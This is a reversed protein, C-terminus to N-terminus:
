EAATAAKIIERQRRYKEVAETGGRTSQYLGLRDYEDSGAPQIALDTYEQKRPDAFINKALHKFYFWSATIKVMESLASWIVRPYFRAPNELPLGPRRDKRYRKRLVGVDLAAIRTFRTQYGFQLLRGATMYRRDSGLAAARKMITKCHELSYFSKGVEEYLYDFEADSINPHHFVRHTLDYKNLDPDMWDGRALARKHDESGPLPTLITLNLIDIPLERKIIEVDRLVSERTDNPFGIIYGGYLITHYKKWALMMDRYDTIKNQRKKSAALNDPNINELGIFAQNVGARACKEIFGPIKHCLTDVQIIMSFDMKENERLHILHDLIAEWNRNRAFNDDTIFFRHVGISEYHRIIKELAEIGRFRSTRGQVNIICCFSCEFPCGRGVDFSAYIENKMATAPLKPITANEIEPLNASHDYVPKLTGAHADCLVEDFAGNEAEGIFLGIGMDRAEKMEVPMEDLMRYCGSVHFGGICVPIDAALFKDAIHMARPFQNSQVGVLAILAKGGDKRIRKLLKSHNVRETIEDITTIRIEVNGGLVQRDSCDEAIGYMCALSNAPVWSRAWHIPYGEDDYRTAKILIINFVETSKVIVRGSRTLRGDRIM